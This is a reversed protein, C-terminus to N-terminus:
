QCDAMCLEPPRRVAAEPTASGQSTKGLKRVSRHGGVWLGWAKRPTVTHLRQSGGRCVQARAQDPCGLGFSSTLESGQAFLGRRDQTDCLFFFSLSPGLPPFHLQFPWRCGGHVLPALSPAPLRLSKRTPHQFGLWPNDRICLNRPISELQGPFPRGMAVLLLM